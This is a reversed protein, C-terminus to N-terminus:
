ASYVNLAEARQPGRGRLRWSSPLRRVASSCRMPLAVLRALVKPEIERWASRECVVHVPLQGSSQGTEHHTHPASVPRMTRIADVPTWATRNIAGAREM